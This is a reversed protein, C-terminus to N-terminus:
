DDSVGEPKPPCLKVDAANEVCDRWRVFKVDQEILRQRTRLRLIDDANRSALMATQTLQGKMRETEEVIDMRMSTLEEKLKGMESNISYRIQDVTRDRSQDLNQEIIASVNINFLFAAVAMVFVPALLYGTMKKPGDPLGAWMRELFNPNDTM